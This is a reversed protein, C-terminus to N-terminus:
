FLGQRLEEIRPQYADRVAAAGTGRRVVSAFYDGPGDPGTARPQLRALALRRRIGTADGKRAVSWYDERSLLGAQYEQMAVLPDALEFTMHIYYDGEIDAPTLRRGEM